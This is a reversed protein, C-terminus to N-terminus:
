VQFAPTTESVEDLFLTGGAAQEFLGKRSTIAGTFAGREHGFLESELLTETLAGCNIAVFQGARRPSFDHLSRAVLEKGTGTEGTIMVSSDSQAALAIRKYLEVMPPSNGVLMTKEEDPTQRSKIRNSRVSTLAKEVLHILDEIKFPKALYDFAGEKIAEVATEVSGQATFMVFPTLPEPANASREKLLELGTGDGLYLDCLVLDFAENSILERAEACSAAAEAAHGASNLAMTVLRSTSYDDEVVLIRTGM